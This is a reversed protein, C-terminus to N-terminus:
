SPAGGGPRKAGFWKAGRWRIDRYICSASVWLIKRRFFGSRRAAISKMQKLFFQDVKLRRQFTSHNAGLWYCFDHFVCASYFARDFSISSIYIHFGRFVVELWTAWDEAFHKEEGLTPPPEPAEDSMALFRQSTAENGLLFHTCPPYVKAATRTRGWLRESDVLSVKQARHPDNAFAHAVAWYADEVPMGRLRKTSIARLNSASDADAKKECRQILIDVLESIQEAQDDTLTPHARLFSLRGRVVSDPQSDYSMREGSYKELDKDAM